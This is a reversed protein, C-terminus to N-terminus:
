KQGQMIKKQVTVLLSNFYLLIIEITNYEAQQSIKDLKHLYKHSWYVPSCHVIRELSLNSSTSLSHLHFYFCLVSCITCHM